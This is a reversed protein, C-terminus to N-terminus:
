FTSTFLKFLEKTFNLSIFTMVKDRGSFIQVVFIFQNTKITIKYGLFGQIGSVDLGQRLKGYYWHKM